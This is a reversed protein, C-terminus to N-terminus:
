QVAEPKAKSLAGWNGRFTKMGWHTMDATPVMRIRGGMGRWRRCFAVDEGVYEGNLAAAAFYVGVPDPRGEVACTEVAMAEFVVRNIRLFGTPLMEVELLGHEDAQHPGEAGVKVPFELKDARKPYVAGVVPRPALLVRLAAEATFGVDADIFLLDTYEGALFDAVLINRAHDIYCCGPLMNSSVSIGAAWLKPVVDILSSATDVCVQGTYAPIALLVDRAPPCVDIALGSAAAIPKTAGLFKGLSDCRVCLWTDTVIQYQRVDGCIPCSAGGYVHGGTEALRRKRAAEGM